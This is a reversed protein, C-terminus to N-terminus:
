AGPRSHDALLALITEPAVPKVLHRDFGAEHARAADEPQGYGTVAVLLATATAPHERLRRGVDYGTMGPLGIDLLVVQPLFSSALELAAPGDHTVQASHGDLELVMRLTVAADVNDDVILVRQPAGRAGDEASAPASAVRAAEPIRVRFESGQGPGRSAASVSGGHLEALSKVLSLGIGLGDQTRDASQEAQVFLDFVRPMLEPPMGIGNDAVELVVDPPERSVRVEIRGGRDTYKAANSLLNGVIQTLRTPDGLSFVTRRPPLVLALVHRRMEVLPRVIEVGAHVVDVWDAVERRLTVKGQNIRSVDLLDDVLRTLHTVQREIAELSSTGAAEDPVVTRLARVAYRIPALPNRLEHALMALFQERRQGASQLQEVARRLSEDVQRRETIDEFMAYVEAPQEAADVALPIADVSIWRYAGSGPHRVGMTVQRVPRHSRLALMSPHEDGPFPSGDERITDHAEQESSSGLFQERTKGLIREAAPNMDIITGDASQHVVGHGMTEFLRRYREESVQLNLEAQKRQDISFTIGVVRVPQGDADVHVRSETRVWIWRGDRHRLRYESTLRDQRVVEALRSSFAERAADEPHVRASLWAVTPEIEADALGLLAGLGSSRWVHGSRLDWDFLHGQVAATALELREQLTREM